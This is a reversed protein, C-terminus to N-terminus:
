FNMFFTVDLTGGITAYLGTFFQAPFENWGIAPTITGSLQTGSAATNDYLLITGATTSSVYFGTMVGPASMVQGSATLRKTSRIAM